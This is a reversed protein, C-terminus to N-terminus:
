SASGQRGWLLVGCTAAVAGLLAVAVWVGALAAKRPVLPVPRRFSAIPWGHQQAIRRLHRDPNIAHPHGVARLLPLDTASDTYAHSAALDYRHESALDLLREVKAPGKNFHLIEGTLKGDAEALETALLHDVGLEDAIPQVLLRASATIIAIRHGQARHYGILDRAEAYVAPTIVEHVTEAALARLQATDLGKAMRLLADKTADMDADTHTIFRYQGLLALMRLLDPTTILGHRAMPRRYALSASTDIITKDLDFVALVRQPSTTGQPPASPASAPTHQPKPAQPPM